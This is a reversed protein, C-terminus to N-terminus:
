VHGFLDHKFGGFLSCCVGQLLCGGGGLCEGGFGGVFTQQMTLSAGFGSANAGQSKAQRWHM